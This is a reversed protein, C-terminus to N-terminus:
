SQRGAFETFNETTGHYVVLPEGNEDVVKSASDPNVRGGKFPLNVDHDPNYVQTPSPKVGTTVKVWVTKTVLRPKHKESTEFVREVYEIKGDPFEKSYILSTQNTGRPQVKIDDYGDLVAAVHKLDDITLPRQDPQRSKENKKGHKNKAHRIEQADLIHQMGSIDPGGQRLVEDREAETVDRLVLSGRPDNEAMANDIFADIENQKALAEWDGFWKKFAETRVQAYQVPNLNSPKGNPALLIQKSSKVAESERGVNDFLLSDPASKLARTAMNVLEAHTLENAWRMFRMKDLGKINRGIARIAQRLWEIVRKSLTSKPYKELYYALAEETVHELNTDEPVRDFAAKIKPDIVKLKEFRALIAKFEASSKGLQLAHVSIEHKVLGELEEPTTDTKSDYFGKADSASEGAISVAEDRGIIKFKGTSLLRNTWGEGFAKDMVSKIAQTLSSQTHPNEVGAMSKSNLSTNQQARYKVLNKETLIKVKSGPMNQLVRSLQLGSTALFDRSKQTDIYRTLGQYVWSRTPPNGKADYANSLIHVGM